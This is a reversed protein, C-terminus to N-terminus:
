NYAQIIENSYVHLVDEVRHDSLERVVRRATESVDLHGEEVAPPVLLRVVHAASHPLEDRLARSSRQSSQPYLTITDQQNVAELEREAAARFACPAERKRHTAPTHRVLGRRVVRREDVRVREPEAEELPLEARAAAREGGPLDVREAVRALERM